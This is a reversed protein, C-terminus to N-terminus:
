RLQLEVPVVLVEAAVSSAQWCGIEVARKLDHEVSLVCDCSSRNAHM